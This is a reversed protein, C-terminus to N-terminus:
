KGQIVGDVSYLKCKSRVLPVKRENREKKLTECDRLVLDKAENATSRGWTWSAQFLYPTDIAIAIATHKPKTKLIEMWTERQVSISKERNEKVM